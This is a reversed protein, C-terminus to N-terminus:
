NARESNSVGETMRRFESKMDELFERPQDRVMAAGVTPDFAFYKSGRAFGAIRDLAWEGIGLWLGAVQRGIANDGLAKAQFTQGTSRRLGALITSALVALLATDPLLGLVM